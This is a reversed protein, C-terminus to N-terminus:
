DSIGVLPRIDQKEKREVFATVALNLDEKNQGFLTVLKAWGDLLPGDNYNYDGSFAKVDGEEPWMYSYIWTNIVYKIEIPTSLSQFRSIYTNKIGYKNYTVSYLNTEYNYLKLALWDYLKNISNGDLVYIAHRQLYDARTKNDAHEINLVFTALKEDFFDVDIDYPNAIWFKRPFDFSGSIKSEKKM